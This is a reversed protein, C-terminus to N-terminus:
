DYNFADIVLEVRRNRERGKKTSNDAVPEEEGKGQVILQKESVGDQYLYEAVANARKISLNKNYEASGMADTYGIVKGKAQPYKLLIREFKEIVEKVQKSKKFKYKDFEFSVSTPLTAKFIKPENVVSVFIPAEIVRRAQIDNGKFHYIAGLYIENSDYKAIDNSGVNNIFKYGSQIYLNPTFRYNIGISAIPSIGSERHNENNIQYGDEMWYAIGGKLYVSWDELFYWDYRLGSQLFSLENNDNKGSSHYEYSFNLSLSESFQSGVLLEYATNNDLTNANKVDTEFQYGINGGIFLHPYIDLKNDAFVESSTVTFLLVALRMKKFNSDIM